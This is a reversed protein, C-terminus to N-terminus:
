YKIFFSVRKCFFITLQNETKTNGHWLKPFQEFSNIIGHFGAIKDLETVNDWMEETIWVVFGHITNLIRKLM